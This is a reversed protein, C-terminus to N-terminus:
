RIYGHPQVKKEARGSRQPRHGERSTAVASVTDSSILNNASLLAAVSLEMPRINVM